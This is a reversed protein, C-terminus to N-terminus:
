AEPEHDDIGVLQHFRSLLTETDNRKAPKEPSAEEAKLTAALALKLCNAREGVYRAEGALELFRQRYWEIRTRLSATAPYELTRARLPEEQEITPEVIRLPVVKPGAAQKIKQYRERAATAKCRKCYRQGDQPPNIRCRSCIAMTETSSGGGM